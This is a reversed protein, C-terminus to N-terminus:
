GLLENVDADSFDDDDRDDRPKIKHEIVASNQIKNDPLSDFRPETVNNESPHNDSQGQRHYSVNIKQECRQPSSSTTRQNQQCRQETANIQTM